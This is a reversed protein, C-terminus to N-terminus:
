ADTVSKRLRAWLEVGTADIEMSQRRSAVLRRAADLVLSWGRKVHPEVEANRIRQPRTDASSRKDSGHDSPRGMWASNLISVMESGRDWLRLAKRYRSMVRSSRSSPRPPQPLLPLPLITSDSLAAAEIARLLEDKDHPPPPGFSGLSADAASYGPGMEPESVAEKTSEM